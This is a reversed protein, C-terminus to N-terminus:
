QGDQDAAPERPPVFAQGQEVLLQLQEKAQAAAKELEITSLVLGVTQCNPAGSNGPTRCYEVAEQWLDSGERAERNWFGGDYRASRVPSSLSALPDEGNALEEATPQQGCGGLLAVALALALFVNPAPAIM